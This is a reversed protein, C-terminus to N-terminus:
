AHLSAATKGHMTVGRIRAFSSRIRTAFPLTAAHRTHHEPPNRHPVIITPTVRRVCCYPRVYECPGTHTSATGSHFTSSRTAWAARRTWHTAACTWMSAFSEALFCGRAKAAGRMTVRSQLRRKTMSMGVLRASSLMCWCISPRRYWPPPLPARASMASMCMLDRLLEKCGDNADTRTHDFVSSIRDYHGRLERDTASWGVPMTSRGYDVYRTIRASDSSLMRWRTPCFQQQACVPTPPFALPRDHTLGCLARVGGLQAIHDEAFRGFEM